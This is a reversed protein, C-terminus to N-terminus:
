LRPPPKHFTAALFNARIDGPSLVRPYIAVEDLGGILFSNLDRTGLRLPANGAVPTVGFSSYLTGSSPPGQKFVGNRYIRVGAGNLPAEYVAVVHIWQGTTLPEEFFAGAGQGGDPAFAYASIRNPRASLSGDPRHKSYFRFAWEFNGKEGKGLWHVYPDKTEGPFDLRDPRMWAEVTLGNNVSFQGSSAIQVYSKGPLGVARNPDNSIAGFQGFRPGGNYTGNHRHLSWDFATPGFLEGLRWYAVPHLSLIRKAYPSLTESGRGGAPPPWLSVASLTTM